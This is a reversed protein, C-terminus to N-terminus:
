GKAVARMGRHWHLLRDEVLRFAVNVAYGLLGLLVIGSWMASIQFNQQFYLTQYGIGNASGVLESFMMVSVGISLAVRVGALIQPSAAPLIVDFLRVRFPLRYTAAVDRTVADIGRVGDITNLLIPWISGFVIVSIRMERGIGFLLVAMPLVAAGPIARFYEVVPFVADRLV